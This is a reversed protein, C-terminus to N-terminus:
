LRIGHGSGLPLGKILRAKALRRLTTDEPYDSINDYEKAFVYLLTSKPSEETKLLKYKKQFCVIGSSEPLEESLWPHLLWSDCYFICADIGHYKKFFDRALAYAAECDEERLPAFAPIHVNIVTDGVKVNHGDIEADVPSEYLEFQLRGLRYIKNELILRQWPRDPSRPVGYIGIRDFGLRSSIEFDDMSSYFIDDCIGLKKYTLYTRESIRVYFYLTLFEVSVDLKGSIKTLFEEFKEDGEDYAAYAQDMINEFWPESLKKHVEYFTARGEKCMDTKQMYLEFDM